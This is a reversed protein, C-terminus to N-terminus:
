SKGYSDFRSLYYVILTFSLSLIVEEWKFLCEELVEAKM